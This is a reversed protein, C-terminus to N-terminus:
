KAIQLKYNQTGTSESSVTVIIFGDAPRINMPLHTTGAPLTELYERKLLRGQADHISVTTPGCATSATLLLADRTAVVRLESQAMERIGTTSAGSLEVDVTTALPSSAQVNVPVATGDIQLLRTATGVPLTAGNLSFVILRTGTATQRRAMQWDNDDLLLHIQSPTVGELELDFAAIEDLSEMCMYSDSAYFLNRAETVSPDGVRRALARSSNSQQNALVMNVTVVIDQINIVMETEGTSYTNAAWLNITSLGNRTPDIICLLTREVDNVDVAGNITADGLTVSATAPYASGNMTASTYNAQLRLGCNNPLNIERGYGEFNYAGKSGDWTVTGYNTNTAQDRVELTPHNNLTQSQHNYCLITPLNLTANGGITLEAATVNDAVPFANANGHQRHQNTLDVSMALPLASSLEDIQNYSLNLSTLLPLGAATYFTAPDGTLANRSLNLTTLTQLTPATTSNLVGTLNRGQLNIATVCGNTDFTVGSWNGAAILKSTTDWQTGNWNAGDFDTYLKCLAALDDANMYFPSLTATKTAQTRNNSDDGEMVAEAADAVVFFRMTGHDVDPVQMTFTVDYTAAAALNGEHLVEAAQVATAFDTNDITYYLRDKWSGETTAGPGQNSVTATVTITNGAEAAEPSTISSVVLDPLLRGSFTMATSTKEDCYGIATVTWTYTYGTVATMTYSTEDTDIVAPYGSLASANPDMPVASINLRYGGTADDVKNWTLTVEGPDLSSDTVPTLGNLTQDAMRPHVYIYYTYEYLQTQGSTLTVNYAIHDLETGSHSVIMAPLTGQTEAAFGSLASNEHPQPTWTATVATSITTLDVPTTAIGACVEKSRLTAPTFDYATGNITLAVNTLTTQAFFSVV